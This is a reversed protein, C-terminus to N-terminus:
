RGMVSSMAQKRVEQSIKAEIRKDEEEAIKDRMRRYTPYRCLIYTNFVAVGALLGATIYGLVGQYFWVVSAMLMYFIFRYVSHFLFGFNMAIARRVFKLQTELCCILAGGCIAYISLIWVGIGPISVLEVISCAILLGAALLNAVRMFLIMRPLDSEDVAAAAEEAQSKAAMSNLITGAINDTQPATSTTKASPEPTDDISFASPPAETPNSARAPTAADSAELWSPTEGDM